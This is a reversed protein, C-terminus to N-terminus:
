KVLKAYQSSVYGYLSKQYEIKFWGTASAEQYAFKDGPNVRALEEGQTNAEKRVKLWGTPTDLIEVYPKSVVASDSSQKPLPTIGTPKVSPALSVSPTVSPTAEPTPTLNIIAQQMALQTNIVTKFGQYLNVKILKDQYGPSSITISHSGPTLSNSQYPTFGEPRGDVTVSASTPLSIVSLEAGNKSTIKEFSLSYGSSQTNDAGFEWTLITKTGPVLNVKTEYPALSQDSVVLRVTNQGPKTSELTFPTKGVVQGNLIVESQPQSNITLGAKKGFPLTCGSLLISFLSLIFINKARQFM